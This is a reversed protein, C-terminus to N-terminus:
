KTVQPAVVPAPSNDYINVTMTYAISEGNDGGNPSTVRIQQTGAHTTKFSCLLSQHNPIYNNDLSSSNYALAYGLVPDQNLFTLAWTVSKDLNWDIENSGATAISFGISRTTWSGLYLDLENYAYGRPTTSDNVLYGKTDTQYLGITVTQPCGRQPVYTPSAASASVTSFIGLLLSISLISLFLFSTKSLPTNKM